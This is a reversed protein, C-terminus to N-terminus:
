QQEEAGEQAIYKMNNGYTEISVLRKKIEGLAMASCYLFEREKTAHPESMLWTTFLNSLIDGYAENFFQERENKVFITKRLAQQADRFPEVARYEGTDHNMRPKVKERFTKTYKDM